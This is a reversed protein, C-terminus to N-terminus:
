DGILERILYHTSILISLGVVLSVVFSLSPNDPFLYLDMLGWAGRWFSVVAIGILLAFYIHANKRSKKLRKIKKAM